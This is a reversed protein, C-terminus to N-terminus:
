IADQGFVPNSKGLSLTGTDNKRLSLGFMPYSLDGQQALRAVPPVALDYNFKGDVIIISTSKGGSVAKGIQSLRPFGLGLVGSAEQEGSSLTVNTDNM